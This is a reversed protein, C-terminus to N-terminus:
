KRPQGGSGQEPSVPMRQCPPSAAPLVGQCAAPINGHPQSGAPQLSQPPPPCSPAEGPRATESCQTPHPQPSPLSRGAVGRLHHSHTPAAPEPPTPSQPGPFPLTQHGGGQRHPPLLTLVVPYGRYLCPYPLLSNGRHM